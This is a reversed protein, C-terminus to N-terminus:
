SHSVRMYFTWCSWGVLILGAASALLIGTAFSTPAYRFELAARGSSVVVGRLAHNVCLIPVEKGDLYAHWGKDWRDALVVLGPTEMQVSVIIKTPIQGTIEASGICHAPLSVPSETYAVERPNFNPPALRNLRTAKDAAMEVRGPIFVRPLASANEVVWYDPGQFVPRAAPWPPGRYIVYRVGLMDLVPSLRVGGAPTFIAKPVYFQTLAYNAVLSAGDAALGLLEVIRAPDVGDYGRIDQLGACSALSAPLCRFGSVRCPGAKAVEALVPVPPYYLKPDSQANRGYAFLLLDVWLFVGFVAVV